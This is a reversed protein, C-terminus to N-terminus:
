LDRAKLSMPNLPVIMENELDKIDLLPTMDELPMSIIKGDNKPIAAVKPWLLDDKRM